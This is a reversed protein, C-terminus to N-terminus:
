WQLGTLPAMVEPSVIRYNSGLQVLSEWPILGLKVPVPIAPCLFWKFWVNMNSLHWQLQAAVFAASSCRCRDFIFMINLIWYSVHTQVISFFKPFLPVSSIPKTVGVGYCNFDERTSSFSGNIWCLWYLPQQHGPSKLRWTMLLWPM